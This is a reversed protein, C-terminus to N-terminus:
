LASVAELDLALGFYGHTMREMLRVGRENALDLDAANVPYLLCILAGLRMDSVLADYDYGTVGRRCLSEHYERLLSDLHGRRVEDDLSGGIFYAVDFAGGHGQGVIQFDCVSVGPHGPRDFVLNDGRFDGHGATLPPAVLRDLVGHFQDGMREGVARAEDSLLHGFREIFLPWLAQYRDQASKNIPHSVPLLWELKELKPDGWFTAHFGALGELAVRADALDLGAVQDGFRGDGLDELILVFEAQELDIDAFHCTPLGIGAAASTALEQYFRVEREYFRFHTAVARNEAYPSQIKAVVSRPGSAGDDYDITLRALEGLIGVGEGITQAEISRVSAGLVDSLWAPTIGSMSDPFGRQM